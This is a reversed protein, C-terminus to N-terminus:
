FLVKLLQLEEERKEAEKQIHRFFTVTLKLNIVLDPSTSRIILLCMQASVESLTASM